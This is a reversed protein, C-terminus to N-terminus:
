SVHKQRHKHHFSPHHHSFSPPPDELPVSSAHSPYPPDEPSIDPPLPMRPRLPPTCTSFPPAFCQANNHEKSLAEVVNVEVFNDVEEVSRHEDEFVQMKTKMNGFTLKMVSTRCNIIANSTALFPRGLIIPIRTSPDPVAQTDLVIFDVSFYFQDVQVLVDEIIGRPVKLSRDVMQLVSRTPKLEGLGLHEYVTYPIFNVNAGLDLLARSIQCKGITIPFTPCGPDKCKVPTYLDIIASVQETLFAKEKM